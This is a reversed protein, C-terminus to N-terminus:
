VAKRHYEPPAVEYDNTNFLSASNKVLYRSWFSFSGFNFEALYRLLFQLHFRRSLFFAEFILKLNQSMLQNKFVNGNFVYTHIFHKKPKVRSLVHRVLDRSWDLSWHFRLTTVPHLLLRFIEKCSVLSFVIVFWEPCCVVASHVNIM